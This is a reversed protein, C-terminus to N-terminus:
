SGLLVLPILTFGIEIGGSAVTPLRTVTVPVSRLILPSRTISLACTCTVPGYRSSRFPSIAFPQFPRFPFPISLNQTKLKSNPFPFASEEVASPIVYKSAESPIVYKSAESPIVYKSAESPIVYKSAENPIVCGPARQEGSEV